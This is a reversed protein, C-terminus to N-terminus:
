CIMTKQVYTSFMQKFQLILKKVNSTYTTCTTALNEYMALYVFSESVM